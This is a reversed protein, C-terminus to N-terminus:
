LRVDNLWGAAIACHVVDRRNRANTKRFLNSVHFKVTPLSIGLRAGIAKNSQAEALLQLVRFEQRTLADPKQGAEVQALSQVQRRLRPFRRLESRLDSKGMVEAVRARNEAWISPVRDPDADKIAAGLHRAAEREGGRALASQTAFLRLTLRQRVSLNSRDLSSVIQRALEQSKANRDLGSAFRAIQTDAGDSQAIEGLLEDAEQWRGLTQLALAEQTSILADFRQSRRQRVRWRRVWSLAAAPTVRSALARRGYSIIPGAVSPWLEGFPISNGQGMVHRLLETEDGNEYDLIMDFSRLLLLDNEMAGEYQELACRAAALRDRATEFAGRRLGIVALYLHVYFTVGREGAADYHFLARHAAEEAEPFKAQRLFLDLVANYLIARLLSANGPLNALVAFLRELARDTIEEDSYIAKMFLVCSLNPDVDPGCHDLPPIDFTESLVTVLEDAKTLDGSKLATVIKFLGFNLDDSVLLDPFGAEIKHAAACGKTIAVFPHLDFGGQKRIVDAPNQLLNELVDRAAPMLVDARGADTQVLARLAPMARIDNQTVPQKHLVIRAIRDTQAADLSNLFAQAFADTLVQSPNDTM